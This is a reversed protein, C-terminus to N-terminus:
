PSAAGARRRFAGALLSVLARGHRGGPDRSAEYEAVSLAVASPSAVLAALLEAAEDWTLGPGPTLVAKAPMHDPDIVDVDLHVVFPRGGRAVRELARAVTAAMGLRCAEAASLALGLGGAAAREGPDLARFGLLAVHGERVGGPEVAPVRGLAVSLSMGDLFGSPTTGPTNLDGHADLWALGVPRGRTARVGAAVAAGVTCDGGLALVFADAAARATAEAAARVARSVGAANRCRPGEADERFPTPELDGHDVVVVGAERLADVLGRDRLAAPARELGASAAAASTPVGLLAIKHAEM